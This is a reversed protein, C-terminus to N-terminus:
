NAIRPLLSEIEDLPMLQRKRLQRSLRYTTRSVPQRKWFRSPIAAFGNGIGQLVWNVCRRRLGIKLYNLLTGTLYIILYPMPVNDVAYIVSNRAGYIIAMSSDRSPSPYHHVAAASGVRVVYGVDLMRICFDSEEGQHFLEERYGGLRLFLKRRIAHAGGYFIDSVYVKHLEPVAPTAREGIGTKGERFNILPINVAGVRPNDFEKITKAVVDISSFFADDDLSFILPTKVIKAARNRQSVLGLSTESREIRVNPYNKLVFEATGDTSGDDIVLIDIPFTQALVSDLARSLEEQRDKTAIIVTVGLHTASESM